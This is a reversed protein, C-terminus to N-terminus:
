RYRANSTGTVTAVWKLFSVQMESIFHLVSITPRLGVIKNPAHTPVSAAYRVRSAAPRHRGGGGDPRSGSQELPPRPTEGGEVWAATEKQKSPSNCGGTTRSLTGPHLHSSRLM